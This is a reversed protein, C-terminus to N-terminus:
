SLQFDVVNVLPGGRFGDPAVAGSALVSTVYGYFLPRQTLPIVFLGDTGEDLTTVFIDLGNYCAAREVDDAVGDCDTAAVDFEPSAFGYPNAASGSRFAGTISGPWPGSVWSFQAIDWRGSDGRRGKSASAELAEPSFPGEALYLGGPASDITLEIGAQALQAQGVELTRDRLANGATTGIRLSLRGLEPHTWIGDGGKTYEAAQLSAAAAIVNNGAYASQHDEYPGQGPMWYANGLGAQPLTDGYLPQFVEAVIEGKDLAYAIAERVQPNALHPNLLNLGWHEYRPGPASAVTFDEAAALAAFDPHPQAMVLHAQGSRLLDIQAARSDVFVLRVGDVHAPGRNTADPSVSGHYADNRTLTMSVGREWASLVLPGSSPLVGADNRWRRLTANVTNADPGFAHEAYVQAYLDRWGPFYSALTITFSTPSTVEFGTVLDYGIRNAMDYECGSSTADVISRDSEVACGEVLIQHTYAVDEATLPEGDSWRLGDRLQYEITVRGANSVTLTPEGALLEPYYAVNRDVGFLGELLGERVWSAIEAGNDPDDVHLDVPERDHVWVLEGPEYAIAIGSDDEQEREVAPGSAPAVVTAMTSTTTAVAEEAEERACAALVMLLVVLV